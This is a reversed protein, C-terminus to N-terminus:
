ASRLSKGMLLMPTGLGLHDSFEALAKMGCATYFARTQDYFPDPASPGVTQVTLFHAGSLRSYDECAALLSRGGGRRHYQRLVGMVHIDFTESTAPSLGAFGAQRGGVEWTFMPMTAVAKVYAKTADPRGFWDPLDSLIKSCIKSRAEPDVIKQISSM